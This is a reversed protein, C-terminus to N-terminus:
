QGISVDKLVRAMVYSSLYFSIRHISSSIFRYEVCTVISVMVAGEEEPKHGSVAGQSLDSDVITAGFLIETSLLGQGPPQLHAPTIM